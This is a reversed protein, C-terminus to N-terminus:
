GIEMEMYRRVTKLGVSEYFQLASENFQWMDLELTRFGRKKADQKMFEMLATAIGQRRHNEDVGFEEVHYFHRACKYPTKETHMFQVTAFGVVETQDLAVIIGSSEEAFRTYVFPAIFDWGDSRFYDPRGTVHLENVQMRIKNVQELEEEKAFRIEINSM